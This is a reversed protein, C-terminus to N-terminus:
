IQHNRAPRNEDPGIEFCGIDRSGIGDYDISTIVHVRNVKGYTVETTRGSKVVVDNLEPEGIQNVAVDLKYIKTELRRGDISAIAGDGAIGVYSRVLKGVVNRQVRDDDYPGPQVIPDGVKGSHGNLVHWNSLLYPAGTAADYVVCGATGATGVINNISVGPRIPDVVSKREDLSQAHALNKILKFHHDYNREIVDTPVMRGGIRIAEPLKPVGIAELAQPVAKKGVTFQVCLDRKKKGGKIKYGIGISTVSPHRLYSTGSRRIFQKLSEM